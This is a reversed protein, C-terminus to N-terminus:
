IDGACGQRVRARPATGWFADVRPGGSLEEANREKCADWESVAGGLGCVMAQRRERGMVLGEAEGVRAALVVPASLSEACARAHPCLRCRPRFRSTGALSVSCSGLAGWDPGCCRSPDRLDLATQRAAGRQRSYFSDGKSPVRPKGRGGGGAWM